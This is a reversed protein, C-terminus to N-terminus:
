GPRRSRRDPSFRLCIEERDSGSKELIRDHHLPVAPAHWSAASDARCNRARTTSSASTSAPTAKGMSGARIPFLNSNSGVVLNCETQGFVEHADIGFTERVWGHLEGGLSKGGTFISRLNLGPNKVGAQRMLKLATPPLFVNRISLGAMMAM